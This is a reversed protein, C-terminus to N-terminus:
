FMVRKVVVDNETVVKVIHVGKVGTAPLTAVGNVATSYALQGATTYVYAMANDATVVVGSANVDITAAPSANVGGVGTVSEGIKAKIATIVEGGTNDLLMAILTTKSLDEITSPLTLTYTHTKMKGTEIAGSLSNEIGNLNDIQRAVHNFTTSYSAPEEWLYQLDQPINTITEFRGDEASYYNTQTGTLGDETLVYAISYPCAPNNLGFLVSTTIDITKKDASLTSNLALAAESPIEHIWDIVQTIGYPENGVGYYPDAAYYRNVIAMPFGFGADYLGAYTDTMFPDSTGSQGHVAITICDDAYDEALKELAYSGRPCYGCWTGTLEEVVATRKYLNDMSILENNLSNDKLYEDDSGNVATIEVSGAYRGSQAPFTIPINFNYSELFYVPEETEMEVETVKGNVNAAVKYNQVPYIGYNTFAGPIYITQNAKGRETLNIATLEVDDSLLGGEGTTICGFYLAGNISADAWGSGSNYLFTYERMVEPSFYVKAKANVMSAPKVTYGLIFDGDIEYDCEILIPEGEAYEGKKLTKSWVNAGGLEKRIWVDISSAGDTLITYIGTIKNGVFRQILSGEFFSAFSIGSRNYPLEGYYLNQVQPTYFTLDKPDMLEEEEQTELTAADSALPKNKITGLPNITQEMKSIALTTKNGNFDKSVNSLKVQANLALAGFLAMCLLLSKKM